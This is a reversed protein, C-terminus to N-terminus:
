WYGDSIHNWYVAMWIGHHTTWPANNVLAWVIGTVAGCAATAALPDIIPSLAGTCAVWLPFAGVNYIAAYSTIVWFHWGGSRSVGCSAGGPCNWDPHVYADPSAYTASTQVVGAKAGRLTQFAKQLAARGAPTSLAENLAASAAPGLTNTHKIQMCKGAIQAYGSTQCSASNITEAGASGAFSLAGLMLASTMTLVAIFRIRMVRRARHEKAPRPVSDMQALRTEAPKMSRNM